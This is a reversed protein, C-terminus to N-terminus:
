HEHRSECLLKAHSGVIVLDVPISKEATSGGFRIIHAKVVIVPTKNAAVSVPKTTSPTVSCTLRIVLFRNISKNWIIMQEMKKLEVTHALTALGDFLPSM